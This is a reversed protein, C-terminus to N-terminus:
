WWQTGSYNNAQGFNNCDGMNVYVNVPTQWKQCKWGSRYKNIKQFSCNRGYSGMSGTIDEYYGAVWTATRVGPVATKERTCVAVTRSIDDGNSFYVRQTGACKMSKKNVIVRFSDSYGATPCSAYVMTSIMGLSIVATGLLKKM